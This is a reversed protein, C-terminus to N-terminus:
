PIRILQLGDFDEVRRNPTGYSRVVFSQDTPAAHVMLCGAGPGAAKCARTWLRDRVDASLDGVFVTPRPSVMWRTLDGRLGPTVHELVILVLM